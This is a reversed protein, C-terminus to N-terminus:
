LIYEELLNILANCHDLDIHVEPCLTNLVGDLGKQDATCEAEFIRRGDGKRDIVAFSFELLRVGDREVRRVGDEAMAASPAVEEMGGYLSSPFSLGEGAGFVNIQCYLMGAAECM